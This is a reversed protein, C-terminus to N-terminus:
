ENTIIKYTNRYNIAEIKQKAALKRNKNVIPPIELKHTTVLENEIANALVHCDVGFKIATEIRNVGHLVTTHDARNFIIGIDKLSLYTYRRLFYFNLHRSLVHERSRSKTFAAYMNVDVKNTVTTIITHIISRDTTHSKYEILGPFAYPSIM